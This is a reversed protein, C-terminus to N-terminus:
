RGNGQCTLVATGDDGKAAKCDQTGDPACDRHTTCQLECRNNVCVNGTVGNSNCVKPDCKGECVGNVMVGGLCPNGATSSCAAASIGLGLAMAVLAIVVQFFRLLSGSNM